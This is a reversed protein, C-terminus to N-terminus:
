RDLNNRGSFGRYREIETAIGYSEDRTGAQFIEGIHGPGASTGAATGPLQAMDQNATLDGFNM